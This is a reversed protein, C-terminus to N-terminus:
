AHLHARRGDRGRLANCLRAGDDLLDVDVLLDAVIDHADHVRRALGLRVAQALERVEDREARARTRRDVEVERRARVREQAVAAVDRGLVDLGHADIHEAVADDERVLGLGLLDGGLRDDALEELVDLDRLRFRAGRATMSVRSRSLFIRFISITVSRRTRSRIAPCYWETKLPLPMAKESTRWYMAPSSMRCISQFTDARM